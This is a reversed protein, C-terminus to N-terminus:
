MEIILLIRRSYALPSTKYILVEGKKCAHLKQLVTIIEEKETSYTTCIHPLDEV